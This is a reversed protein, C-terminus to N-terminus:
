YKTYGGHAEVVQVMRAGMSNIVEYIREYPLQDWAAIVAEELDHVTAFQRNEAYVLRALLGFVNEIPNLDPSHSPWRMVAMEQTDLWDQTVHATHPKANDHQFGVDEESEEEIYQCLPWLIRQLLQKYKNGNLNGEIIVGAESSPHYNIAFWFMVSGGGHQRTSFIEEEKRL